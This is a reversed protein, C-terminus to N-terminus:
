REQIVFGRNVGCKSRGDRGCMETSVHKSGDIINQVPTRVAGAGEVGRPSQAIIRRM